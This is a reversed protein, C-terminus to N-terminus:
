DSWELLTITTAGYTKEKIVKFSPPITIKEESSFLIAVTGDKGLLKMGSIIELAKANLGKKYPPDLLILDYPTELRRLQRLTDARFAESVDTIELNNLNTTLVRFAARDHDIFDAHSAGRSLAEIGLSGSGAFADLVRRGQLPGLINFLNEKVM